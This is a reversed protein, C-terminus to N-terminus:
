NTFFGLFVQPRQIRHLLFVLWMSGIPIYSVNEKWISLEQCLGSWSPLFGQIMVEGEPLFPFVIIYVCCWLKESLNWFVSQQRMQRLANFVNLFSWIVHYKSFVFVTTQVTVLTQSTVLIEAQTSEHSEGGTCTWDKILQGIQRRHM